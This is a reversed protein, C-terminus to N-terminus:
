DWRNSAIHNQSNEKAEIFRLKTIESISIIDCLEWFNKSNLYFLMYSMAQCINSTWCISMLDWGFYKGTVMLPYCQFLGSLILFFNKLLCIGAKLNILAWHNSYKDEVLHMGRYLLLAFVNWSFTKLSLAYNWRLRNEYKKVTAM